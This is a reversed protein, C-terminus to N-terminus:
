DLETAWGIFIFQSVWSSACNTDLGKGVAGCAKEAKSKETISDIIGNKDLCQFYADRAEWCRARQTRDPAIPAGDSSLKPTPPSNNSSGFLGM